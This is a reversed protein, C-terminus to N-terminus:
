ITKCEYQEELNYQKLLGSFEERSVRKYTLDNNHQSLSYAIGVRVQKMLVPTGNDILIADTIGHESHQTEREFM